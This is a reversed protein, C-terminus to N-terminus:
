VILAGLFVVRNGKSGKVGSFSGVRDHADVVGRKEKKMVSDRVRLFVLTQHIHTHM